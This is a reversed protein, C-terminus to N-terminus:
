NTTSNYFWNYSFYGQPSDLRIAITSLGKLAAPINFTGEVSGGNGSNLTGVEIGNIAQTGFPGMRATFTQGAPYNNTKITVSTDRVVSQISITPIVQTPAPTATQSPASTPAPTSTPASTPSPTGGGGSSTNYFWNYSFYGSASEARIAIRAQGKLEAPIDYTLSFSGGGASNFEGVVIGNVGKTGFLGMRVVFDQDVPYDHTTIEVSDDPVVSDISITPITAARAPVILFVAVLAILISGAVAGILFKQSRMDEEKLSHVHLCRFKADQL